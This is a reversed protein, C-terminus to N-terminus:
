VLEGLRLNGTRKERTEQKPFHGYFGKRRIYIICSNDIYIAWHKKYHGSAILIDGLNNKILL